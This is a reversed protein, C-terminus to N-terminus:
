GLEGGKEVKSTERRKGYKQFKGKAKECHRQFFSKQLWRGRHRTDRGERAKGKVKGKKESIAL